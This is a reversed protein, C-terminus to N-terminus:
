LEDSGEVARVLEEIVEGVAHLSDTRLSVPLSEFDSTLGCVDAAVVRRTRAIRRILEILAPWEMNGQNETTEERKWDTIPRTRAVDLDISLYLPGEAVSDATLEDVMLEDVTRWDVVLTPEPPPAPTTHPNRIKPPARRVVRADRVSPNARALELDRSRFPWYVEALDSPEVLYKRLKRFYESGFEGLHDTYVTPYHEALVCPPYQGLLTVTDIRPETLLEGVFSGCTVQPGPPGLDPHADIQVYSLRDRRLLRGLVLPLTEHHHTGSGNIAVLKDFDVDRPVLAEVPLVNPLPALTLSPAGLGLRGLESLLPRTEPHGILVIPVSM